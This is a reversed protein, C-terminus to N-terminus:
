GKCAPLLVFLLVSMRCCGRRVLYDFPIEITIHVLWDDFQVGRGRKEKEKGGIYTEDVEVSGSLRNHGLRVM